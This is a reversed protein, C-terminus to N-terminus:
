GQSAVRVELSSGKIFFFTKEQKKILETLDKIAETIRYLKQEVGALRQEMRRTQEAISTCMSLVSRVTTTIDANDLESRDSPQLNGDHNTSNNSVAADDAVPDTPRTTRRGSRPLVSAM